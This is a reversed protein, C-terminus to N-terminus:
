FPEYYINIIKMNWYVNYTYVYFSLTYRYLVLFYAFLVIAIIHAYIFTFLNHVNQDMDACIDMLFHLVRRHDM